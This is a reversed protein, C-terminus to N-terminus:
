PRIRRCEFYCRKEEAHGISFTKKPLVGGQVVSCFLADKQFEPLLIGINGQAALRRVEAEGHIYDVSAEKHGDLYENLLEELVGVALPNKCHRLGVKIQKRATIIRYEYQPHQNTIEMGEQDCFEATGLLLSAASAGFVVRHIAEMQIAPSHLNCVEALCWRAPHTKRESESLSPKISEWHAKATALSHNGDGVALALPPQGACAPYRRDFEQQSGMHAMAEVIGQVLVPEEVAWGRIFGSGQFLEGGYVCPLNNKAAAVPGILTDAPDDALMMIHPTELLADKRVALRPPIREVVTNETPRVLPKAGPTYNYDELDVCGVLGQRIQGNSLTREVYVFGHVTRTLVEAAYREMDNHISAIYGAEEPKGLYLEPLVLDLTSPKGKRLGAAQAWYVPQSTFQDCALCAWQAASIDEDPLLIEGPVFCSHM